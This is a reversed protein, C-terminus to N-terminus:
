IGGFRCGVYELIELYTHKTWGWQKKIFEWKEQKVAMYNPLGCIKWNIGMRDGNTEWWNDM